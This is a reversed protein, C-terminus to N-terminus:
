GLRDRLVRRQGANMAELTRLHFHPLLSLFTQLCVRNAMQLWLDAAAFSGWWLLVYLLFCVIREVNFFYAVYVQVPAQLRRWAVCGVLGFFAAHYVVDGERRGGGVVSFLAGQLLMHLGVTGWVSDCLWIADGLPESPRNVAYAYAVGCLECRMRNMDEGIWQELCIQHVSGVSGRCLCPSRLAGQGRETGEYCIRCLAEM